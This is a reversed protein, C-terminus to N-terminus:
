IGFGGGGWGVVWLKQMNSNKKPPKPPNVPLPPVFGPNELRVVGLSVCGSVAAICDASRGAPLSPVASGVSGM